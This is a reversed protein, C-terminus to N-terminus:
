GVLRACRIFYTTQLLGSITLETLNESGPVVQWDTNGVFNPTDEDNQLWIYEFGLEAYSSAPLEVNTIINTANPDYPGTFSISGGTISGEACVEEDPACYQDPNNSATSTTSSGNPSHLTWVLQSGDFPVQFVDVQRGPLFAFPQGRDTPSPTFKYDGSVPITVTIDNKNDYGFHALYNGDGLVEVCELVTSVKESPPCLDQININVDGKDSAGNRFWTFWGSASPEDIDKGGASLGIQFPNGMHTFTIVDNEDNTDVLFSETDDLIYYIWTEYLNSGQGLELKTDVIDTPDYKLQLTWTTSYKIGGGTRLNLLGYLEAGAENHFLQGEIFDFKANGDSFANKLWLSHVIAGNNTSSSANYLKDELTIDSCSLDAPITYTNTQASLGFAVAFASLFFIGKLVSYVSKKM